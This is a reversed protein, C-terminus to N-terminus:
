AVRKPSPPMSTSLPNTAQPNIDRQAGFVMISGGTAVDEFAIRREFESADLCPGAAGASTVAQPHIAGADALIQAISVGFPYEYIGPRAVDGSVSLVKSGASAATGIASFWAGGHLAILAVLALTEVNNVTTPQGLYGHTVPFPPSEIDFDFGQGLINRGLTGAARRETLRTELQPLLYRYEGRLYLLGKTAGVVFAAIAMGDIVADFCTSLL